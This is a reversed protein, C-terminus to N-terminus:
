VGRWGIPWVGRPFEPRRRKLGRTRAGQILNSCSGTTAHVRKGNSRSRHKAARWAKPDGGSGRGRGLGFVVADHYDLPPGRGPPRHQHKGDSRLDRSRIAEEAFAGVVGPASRAGRGFLDEQHHSNGAAPLSLGHWGRQSKPLGMLRAAIPAETQAGPLGHLTRLSPFGGCVKEPVM